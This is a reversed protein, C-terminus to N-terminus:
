SRVAYELGAGCLELLTREYGDVMRSETFYTEAAERADRGMRASTQRDALIVLRNVLAATDGAPFLFGNRGPAILERAGGVDSHVVPKGMAMAEIAALSLAETLSCLVMADCASIWPRVDERFGAIAVDRAVGLARAREEIAGRMAGDGIMLARAPIGRGRLQAVADVLQLHNKEPRLGAAIGIVYDGDSFGLSARLASRASASSTDRFHETDVGNRIVANRRSFLARRMCYRRQSECVFVTCAASWIFLRYALLKLQEKLGGYRTSHYASVLPARCRSLRLALWAYMLAYPNEAVIAAPDIRSLHAAFKSLARRDFFREAELCHVTGAGRLRIRALQDGGPKVYVAHCEHGREALRNMLTVAHHEAGGHELSGTVFM